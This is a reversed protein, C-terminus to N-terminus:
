TSVWQAGIAFSLLIIARISLVCQWCYFLVKLLGLIKFDNISFYLGPLVIKDETIFWLGASSSSSSFCEINWLSDELVIISKGSNRLKYALCLGTLGAGLIIIDTKKAMVNRMENM